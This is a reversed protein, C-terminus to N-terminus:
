FNAYFQRSIYKNGWSFDHLGILEFIDLEEVCIIAGTDKFLYVYLQNELSAFIKIKPETFELDLNGTRDVVMQLRGVFSYLISWGEM